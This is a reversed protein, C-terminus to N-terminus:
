KEMRLVVTKPKWVTSPEGVNGTLSCTIEKLIALSWPQPTLYVRSLFARVTRLEVTDPNLARSLSKM